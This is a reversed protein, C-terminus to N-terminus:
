EHKVYSQLTFSLTEGEFCVKVTHILEGAGPPLGFFAHASSYSGRGTEVLREREVAVVPVLKGSQTQATVSVSQSPIPKAHKPRTISVEIYESGASDTTTCVMAIYSAFKLPKSIKM